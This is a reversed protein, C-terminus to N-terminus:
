RNLMAIRVPTASLTCPFFEFLDVGYNLSMLFYITHQNNTFQEGLFFYLFYLRELWLTFSALTIHMSRSGMSKARAM